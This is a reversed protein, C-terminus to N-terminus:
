GFALIEVLLLTNDSAITKRKLTDTECLTCAKLTAMTSQRVHASQRRKTRPVPEWVIWYKMGESTCIKSQILCLPWHV